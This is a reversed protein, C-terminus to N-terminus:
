ALFLKHNGVKLYTTFIRLNSPESKMELWCFEFKRSLNVVKGKTSVTMM